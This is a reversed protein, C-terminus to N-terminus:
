QSLRAAFGVALLEQIALFEKKVKRQKKEKTNRRFSRLKTAMFM